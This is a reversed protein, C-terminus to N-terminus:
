SSAIVGNKMSVYTFPYENFVSDIVWDSLLASTGFVM